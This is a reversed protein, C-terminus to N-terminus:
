KQKLVGGRVCSPSLNSSVGEYAPAHHGYRSFSGMWRGGWVGRIRLLIREYSVGPSAHLAGTLSFFHMCPQGPRRSQGVGARKRRCRQGHQRAARGADIGGAGSRRRGRQGAQAVAGSRRRGALGASGVRGCGRRTAQGAEKRCFFWGARRRKERVCL